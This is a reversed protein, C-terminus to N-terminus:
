PLEVRLHFGGDGSLEGAAWGGAAAARDKLGALGSGDGLGDHRVGDNYLDLSTTGNSRTLIIACTTADSHRLLNTTGERVAWALVRQADGPLDLGTAPTEVRTDVGAAILLGQAAAIEEALTVRHEDRTVARVDRLTSRALETLSTIEHRAKVPDLPLLRAALDGKLSIASLSQGLLDHLDRSVRVREEDVALEALEARTRYLENVLRVLRVTGYLVLSFVAWTIALYVMELVMNRASFKGAILFPYTALAVVYSATFGVPLGWPRPLILMMSASLPLAASAWDLGLWPLPAYALAAQLALTWRWAVPRREGVAARVHRLHVVTLVVGAAVAFAVEGAPHQRNADTAILIPSMVLLSLHVVVLLWPAARVIGHPQGPGTV